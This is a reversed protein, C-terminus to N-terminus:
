ARQAARLRRSELLAFWLLGYLPTLGVLWGLWLPIAPPLVAKLPLRVEGSGSPGDVSLLLTWDGHTTVDVFRVDFAGRVEPDPAVQARLPTASLGPAPLLQASLRLGATRPIVMLEYSQGARAIDAILDVELDYPGAKADVIKAPLATHALAVTPVLLAVLLLAVEVFRRM